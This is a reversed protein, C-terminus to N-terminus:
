SRRSPALRRPYRRAAEGQATAAKRSPTTEDNVALGVALIFRAEPMGALASLFAGVDSASIKGANDLLGLSQIAAVAMPAAAGLGDCLERPTWMFADVDGTDPLGDGAPTGSQGGLMGAWPHWQMGLTRMVTEIPQVSFAGAVGVTVSDITTNPAGPAITAPMGQLLIGASNAGNAGPSTLIGLLVGEVKGMDELKRRGATAGWKDIVLMAQQGTNATKFSESGSLVAFYKHAGAATSVKVISGRLKASVDADSLNDSVPTIDAAPICGAAVFQQVATATGDVIEEIIKLMTM